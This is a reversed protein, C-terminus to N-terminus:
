ITNLPIHELPGSFLNIQDTMHTSAGTDSVWTTPNYTESLDQRAIGATHHEEELMSDYDSETSSYEEDDSDGQAAYALAPKGGSQRRPSSNKCRPKNDNERRASSQSALVREQGERLKQM